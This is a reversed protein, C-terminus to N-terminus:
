KNNELAWQRSQKWWNDKAMDKTHVQILTATKKVAKHITKPKYHQQIEAPLDEYQLRM